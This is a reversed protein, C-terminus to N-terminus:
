RCCSPPCTAPRVSAARPLTSGAPTPKALAILEAANNAEVSPHVLVLLPTGMVNAVPAFDAIFNYNLKQYLSNNITNVTNAM